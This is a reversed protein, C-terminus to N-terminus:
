EVTCVNHVYDDQFAFKYCIYPSVLVTESNLYVGFFVRSPWFPDPHAFYAQSAICELKLLLGKQTFTM